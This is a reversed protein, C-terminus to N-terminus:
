GRHEGTGLLSPDSLDEAIMRRPGDLRVAQLMAAAAFIGGPCKASRATNTRLRRSCPAQWVWYPLMQSSACSVSRTSIQPGGVGIAPRGGSGFVLRTTTKLVTSESISRRVNM